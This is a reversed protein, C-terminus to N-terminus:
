EQVNLTFPPLLLELQDASLILQYDGAPLDTFTFEGLEDALTIGVEHDNQLLQVSVTAPALDSTPLLQGALIHNGLTRERRVNLAVDAVATSYVLQRLDLTQTSRVGALGPQLFSDFTLAAVLRQLFGLESKTVKQQRRHDVFLQQLKQHLAPPPAEVIVAKSTQLFVRAWAVQAQLAADAVAVQAAVTASAQASLRGELWDLIQEITLPTSTAM